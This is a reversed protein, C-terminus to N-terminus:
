PNMGETTTITLACTLLLQGDPGTMTSFPEVEIVDDIGDVLASVIDDLWGIMTSNDGPRAIVLARWGISWSGFRATTIFPTGETLIIAPLDLRAPVAQHVPVDPCAARLAAAITARADAIM